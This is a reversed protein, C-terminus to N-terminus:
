GLTVGEMNCLCRQVSNWQRGVHIQLGKAGVQVAGGNHIAELEVKLLVEALTPEIHVVESVHRKVIRVAWICM